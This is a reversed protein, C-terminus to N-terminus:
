WREHLWVVAPWIDENYNRPDLMTDKHIARFLDLRTDWLVEMFAEGATSNQQPQLAERLFSTFERAELQGM